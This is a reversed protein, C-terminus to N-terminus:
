ARKAPFDPDFALLSNLDPVYSSRALIELAANLGDVTQQPFPLMRCCAPVTDRLIGRLLLCCAVFLAFL